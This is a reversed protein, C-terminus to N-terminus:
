GRLREGLEFLVFSGIKATARANEAGELREQRDSEGVDGVLLRDFEVAPAAFVEVRGFGRPMAGYVTSVEARCERV